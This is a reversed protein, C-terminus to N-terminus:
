KGPLRIARSCAILYRVQCWDCGYHSSGPILRM